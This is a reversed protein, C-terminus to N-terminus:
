WTGKVETGNLYAKIDTCNYVLKIINGGIDTMEWTGSRYFKSCTSAFELNTSKFTIVASGSGITHEGSANHEGLYTGDFSYSGTANLKGNNWAADHTYTGDFKYTMLYDVTTGAPLGTITNYVAKVRGSYEGKFTTSTDTGSGDWQGIHSYSYKNGNSPDEYTYDTINFDYRFGGKIGQVSDDKDISKLTGKYTYKQGNVDANTCDFTYTKTLAINDSDADTTPNPSETICVDWASAAINRSQKKKAKAINQTSPSTLAAVTVGGGINNPLSLAGSGKPMNNIVGVFSTVIQPASTANIIGEPGGGVCGHLLAGAGIAALALTLTRTKRLIM